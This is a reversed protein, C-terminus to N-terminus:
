QAFSMAAMLPNLSPCFSDASNTVMPDSWELDSLVPNSRSAKWLEKRWKLGALDPSEKPMSRMCREIPTHGALELFPSGITPSSFEPAAVSTKGFTVDSLKPAAVTIKRVTVAPTKGFSVAVNVVVVPM